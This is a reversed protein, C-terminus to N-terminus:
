KMELGKKRDERMRMQQKRREFVVRVLRDLQGDEHGRADGMVNPAEIGKERNERIERAKQSLVQDPVGAFEETRRVPM